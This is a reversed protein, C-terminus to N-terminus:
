RHIWSYSNHLRGFLYVDLSFSREIMQLQKLVQVYFRYVTNKNARARLQLRTEHSLLETIYVKALDSMGISIVFVHYTSVKNMDHATKHKLM